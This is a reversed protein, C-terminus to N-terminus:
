NMLSRKDGFAFSHSSLLSTFHHDKLDDKQFAYKDWSCSSWGDATAIACNVLKGSYLHTDPTSRVVWAARSTGGKFGPLVGLDLGKDNVWVTVQSSKANIDIELYVYDGLPIPRPMVMAQRTPSNYGITLLQDGRGNRMVGAKLWSGNDTILSLMVTSFGTSPISIKQTSYLMGSVNTIGHESHFASIRPAVHKSSELQM